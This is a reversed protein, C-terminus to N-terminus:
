FVMLRRRRSCCDERCDRSCHYGLVELLMPCSVKSAPAQAYKEPTPEEEDEDFDTEDTTMTNRFKRWLLSCKRAFSKDSMHSIVELGDTTGLFSMKLRGMSEYDGIRWRMLVDDTSGDACPYADSTEYGFGHWVACYFFSELEHHFAYKRAPDILTSYAMFPVTGIRGVPKRDELPLITALDFDILVAIPNGSIDRHFALNKM